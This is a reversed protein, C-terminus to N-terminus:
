ELISIDDFVLDIFSKVKPLEVNRYNVIMTTLFYTTTHWGIFEFTINSPMYENRMHYFNIEFQDNEAKFMSIIEVGNKELSQAKPLEVETGNLAVGMFSITISDTKSTIRNKDIIYKDSNKLVFSTNKLCYVDSDKMNKLSKCGYLSLVLLLVIFRMKIVM